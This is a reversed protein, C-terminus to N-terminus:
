SRTLADVWENRHRVAVERMAAWSDGHGDRWMTDWPTIGAAARRRLHEYSSGIRAVIADPLRRRDESSLDYGDALAVLRDAMPPPTSWGFPTPDHGIPLISIATYAVDWIPPRPGAVDWDIFALRDRGVVLNWAAADNHCVVTGRADVFPESDAAMEPYRWETGDPPVFGAVADHYRRLLAGVAAVADADGLLRAHRDDWAIEGEIFDLIERGQEDVGIVRPAGDFGARELHRLLAHVAPTWPGVPRRVTDGVRVVGGSLNGGVLLEEEVQPTEDGRRLTRPM